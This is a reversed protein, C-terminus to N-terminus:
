GEGFECAESIEEALGEMPGEMIQDVSVTQSHPFPALISAFLRVWEDGDRRALRIIQHMEKSCQTLSYHICLNRVALLYM